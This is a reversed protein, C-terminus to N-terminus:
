KTEEEIVVHAANVVSIFVTTSLYDVKPYQQQIDSAVIAAIKKIIDETITIM